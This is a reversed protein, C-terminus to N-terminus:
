RAPVNDSEPRRPDPMGAELIRIARPVVLGRGIAFWLALLVMGPLQSTLASQAVAGAPQSYIVVIRLLSDVLLVVGLGATLGRYVTRFRRSSDWAREFAMARVPDGMTAVPKLAVRMLPQASWATALVYVGAVGPYISSRALVFRPDGSISSIVVSAGVEILVLLAFRDLGPGGDDRRRSRVLDGCVIAASSAAAVVMCAVDALGAAHCGLLAAVPIAASVAGLRWRYRQAGITGALAKAAVLTGGVTLRLTASLGTPALVVLAIVPLLIDVVANALMALPMLIKARTGADPM